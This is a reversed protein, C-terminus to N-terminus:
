VSTTPSYSGSINETTGKIYPITVITVPTPNRNTADAETFRYTNRRIFDHSHGWERIKKCLFFWLIFGPVDGHEHRVSIIVFHARLCVKRPHIVLTVHVNKTSAFNRLASIVHNQTFFRDDGRSFSFWLIWRRLSYFIVNKSDSSFIFYAIQDVSAHCVNLYMYSYRVYSTMFQLNDVIVHEIDYVYAAHTM